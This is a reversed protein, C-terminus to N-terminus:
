VLHLLRLKKEPTIFFLFVLKIAAFKILTGVIEISLDRFYFVEMDRLVDSFIFSLALCIFFVSKKSFSNLYYVLATIAIFLLNLYYIAYLWFALENGLNREIESIQGWLLYVYIGVIILFYLTTFKSGKEYETHRIAERALFFYGTLWLGLKIQEFYWFSGGFSILTAAMAMGFSMLFNCNKFPFKKNYYFILPLFFLIEGLKRVLFNDGVIGAVNVCMAVIALLSLLVKQKM